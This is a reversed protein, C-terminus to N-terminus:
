PIWHECERDEGSWLRQMTWPADPDSWFPDNEPLGLPLFVACCLYLSGTSIYAEGMGPQSGCVGVTLWGNEDFLTSFDMTRRIVATLGGRVGAPTVTDELQHRWAAMSLCQFAGFRYCLSRGLLPYTGEPSILHEQIAAYHSLRKEMEPLQKQWEPFFDGTQEVAEILMPQIVYSNYYDWHFKPGDGYVGDGKYWQMHSRIAYDVRMPDWDAGGGYRILCEIMASFLLWNNYGPCRSRTARMADLLRAKTVPSLPEWLENPARLIGQALFAADVIPQGGESFNLRDAATPDVAVDLCRRAMAAYKQRLAEEEGTLERCGLWPAIGMLTRGFAELYTCHTYVEPAQKGRVPMEAKLRDRSLADLVPHAIKLMADLWLQRTTNM